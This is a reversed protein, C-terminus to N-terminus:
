EPKKQGFTFGATLTIAAGGLIQLESFVRKYRVGFAPVIAPAVGLGNFPIKDKYEDKYGHLLGGTLKVYAWDTDFIDWHYGAYVYQSPQDFSNDFWAFGYLWKRTTEFEFNILRINNNHDDNPSWHRTYLSTQFKWEKIDMAFSSTAGVLFCGAFLLYALWKVPLM